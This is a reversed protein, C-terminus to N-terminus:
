ADTIQATRSRPVAADLVFVIAGAVTSIQLRTLYQLVATGNWRQLLAQVDIEILDGRVSVTPPLRNAVAVLLAAAVRLRAISLVKLVIVRRDLFDQQEIRLEVPIDPLFAPTTLRLRVLLIDGPIAKITMRRVPSSEPLLCNMAESVVADSIPVTLSARTGAFAPLGEHLQGNLLDRFSM